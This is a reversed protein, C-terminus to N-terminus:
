IARVDMAMVTYIQVLEAATSIAIRTRYISDIKVYVM